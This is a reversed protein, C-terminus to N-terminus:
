TVGSGCSPMVTVAEAQMVVACQRWDVFKPFPKRLHWTRSIVILGTTTTASTPRYKRLQGYPENPSTDTVGLATDPRRKVTSRRHSKQECCHLISDTNSDRLGHRLQETSTWCLNMLPMNCSETAVSFLVM